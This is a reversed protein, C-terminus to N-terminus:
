ANDLYKENFVLIDQEILYPFHGRNNPFIATLDFRKEKLYEITESYKPTGKYLSKFSIETQIGVFNELINSTRLISLDHGQTDLKLLPKAFTLNKCAEEYAQDLLKVSVEETGTKTNISQLIKTEATTPEELSNMQSSGVLNLKKTGSTDSIADNFTHWNQDGSARKNLVSFAKSYPEYSLIKGKFGVKTRLMTAYQGENAGIDFVIDINFYKIFKRLSTVEQIEHLQLEISM